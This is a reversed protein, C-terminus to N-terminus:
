GVRILVTGVAKPCLKLQCSSDPTPCHCFTLLVGAEPWCSGIIPFISMVHPAMTPTGTVSPSSKKFSCITCPVIGDISCVEFVTVLQDMHLCGSRGLQFNCPTTPNKANKPQCPIGFSPATKMLLHNVSETQKFGQRHRQM